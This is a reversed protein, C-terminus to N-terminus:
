TVVRRRFDGCGSPVCDGFCTVVFRPLDGCLPGIVMACWVDALWFFRAFFMYMVLTGRLVPISICTGHINWQPKASPVCSGCSAASACAVSRIM